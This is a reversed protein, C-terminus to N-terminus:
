KKLDYIKADTFSVKVHTQWIAAIFTALFKAEKFHKLINIYIAGTNITQILFM